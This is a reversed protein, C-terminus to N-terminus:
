RFIGRPDFAAKLAKYQRVSDGREIGIGSEHRFAGGQAAIASLATTRCLDIARATDDPDDGDGEIGYLAFEIACGDLWSRTVRPLVLARGSLARRVSRFLPEVRDWIATCEVDFAFAGSALLPARMWPERRRAELAKVAASPGADEGGCLTLALEGARSDDFALVLLHSQPMLRNLLAPARLGLKAGRQLSDPIRVSDLIQARPRLGARLVKQLGRVADEVADFKVGRLWPRSVRPVIRLTARTFVALSGESGLLIQALDPGAAPADTTRLIEGTGDVAELALVEEVSGRALAGGVTGGELEIQVFERLRAVRLGAGATAATGALAFGALRKTDLAIGGSVAIAGGHTGTGSGFPTVPISQAAAFRIVASVQEVSEPWVVVAPQTLSRARLMSNPSSDRSAAFLDAQATSTAIGLAALDAALRNV